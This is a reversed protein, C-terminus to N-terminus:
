GSLSSKDPILKGECGQEFKGNRNRNVNKAPLVISSPSLHASSMLAGQEGVQGGWLCRGGWGM